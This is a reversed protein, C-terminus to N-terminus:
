TRNKWNRLPFGDELYDLEIDAVEEIEEVSLGYLNLPWIPDTVRKLAGLVIRARGQSRAQAIQWSLGAFYPLEVIPYSRLRDQPSSTGAPRGHLLTGGSYVLCPNEDLAKAEGQNLGCFEELPEWPNISQLVTNLCSGPTANWEKALSCPLILDQFLKQGPFTSKFDDRDLEYEVPVGPIWERELNKVATEPNEGLAEWLFSYAPGEVFVRETRPLFRETEQLTEGSPSEKGERYYAFRRSTTLSVENAGKINFWNALTVDPWKGRGLLGKSDQIDEMQILARVLACYWAKTRLQELPDRKRRGRGVRGM